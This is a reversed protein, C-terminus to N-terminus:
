RLVKSLFPAWIGSFAEALDISLSTFLAKTFDVLGPEFAAHLDSGM